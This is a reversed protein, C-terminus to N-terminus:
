FIWFRKVTEPKSRDVEAKLETILSRRDLFVETSPSITRLSIGRIMGGDGIEILESLSFSVKDIHEWSLRIEQLPVEANGVFFTVNKRKDKNTSTKRYHYGDPDGILRLSGEYKLAKEGIEERVERFATKLPNGRDSEEMGGGPFEWIRKTNQLLVIRSDNLIMVAKASKFVIGSQPESIQM